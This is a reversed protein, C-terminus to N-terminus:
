RDYKLYMVSGYIIHLVGFGIAWFLLGYGPLCAAILGLLIESLGLYGVDKYTFNSASVLALGYFVLCSPSVFGYYGRYIHVLVLLGGTFLPVAMNFVLTKSTAGWMPQGKRKAKRSSLLYGTLISVTLVLLAASILGAKAAPSLWVAERHHFGGTNGYIVVYAFAAGALAYIGALIGSLGSLSIFRSSREMMSRISALEEQANNEKM